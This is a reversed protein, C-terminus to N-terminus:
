EEVFVFDREECFSKAAAKSKVTVVEGDPLTIDWKGHRINHARATEVLHSLPLAVFREGVGGVMQMGEVGPGHNKSESLKQVRVELWDGVWDRITITDGVEVTM